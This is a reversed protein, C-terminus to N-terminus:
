RRIGSIRLWDQHQAIPDLIFDPNYAAIVADGQEALIGSLVIHGGPKVLTALRPALEILPNALINALLVDAAIAPYDDPLWTKLTAPFPNNDLNATTAQLAQPDNDVGHLEAAGLKGAALALIGSGCGYDLVTKNNIHDANEDLWELCLRTTSHTGTGFALGPDLHIPLANPEDPVNHNSPVIWLRQGFRMPHFNDMWARTWDRDELPDLHIKNAAIDLGASLQQHLEDADREATFLGIVRTQDWLPTSGKPPEYLPQDGADQLTVAAAGLLELIAETHPINGTDTEIVAQLWAM